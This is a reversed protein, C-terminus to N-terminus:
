HSALRIILNIIITGLISLILSTLWFVKINMIGDQNNNLCESPSLYAKMKDRLNICRVADAENGEQRARLISEGLCRIVSVLPEDSSEPTRNMSACYLNNTREKEM